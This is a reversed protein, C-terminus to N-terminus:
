EEEDNIGGEGEESVTLEKLRDIVAQKFLNMYEDGGKRGDVSLGQVKAFKKVKSIGAFHEIIKDNEMTSVEVLESVSEPAKGKELVKKEEGPGDEPKGTGGEPKEKVEEKGTDEPKGKEEVKGGEPPKNTEEKKKGKSAEGKAEEKPKTEVKGGEPGKGKSEDEVLSKLKAGKKRGTAANTGAGIRTKTPRMKEGPTYEEFEVEGEPAESPPLPKNKARDLYKKVEAKTRKSRFTSNIVAGIERCTRRKLSPDEILLAEDLAEFLIEKLTEM